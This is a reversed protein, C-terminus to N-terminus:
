VLSGSDDDSDEAKNNSAESYVFAVVHWRLISHIQVIYGVRKYAGMATRYAIMRPGRANAEGDV